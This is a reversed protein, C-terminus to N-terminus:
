GEILESLSIVNRYRLRKEATACMIDWERSVPRKLCSSFRFENDCFIIVCSFNGLRNLEVTMHQSKFSKKKHEERETFPIQIAPTFFM